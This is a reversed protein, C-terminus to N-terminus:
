LSITHKGAVLVSLLHNLFKYTDLVPPIHPIIRFVVKGRTKIASKSNQFFLLLSILDGHQRHIGERDVKSHRFWYKHFRRVEFMEGM